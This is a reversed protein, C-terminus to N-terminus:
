GAFTPDWEARTAVMANCYSQGSAGTILQKV